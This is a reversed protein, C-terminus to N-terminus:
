SRLNARSGGEVRAVAEKNPRDKVPKIKLNRKGEKNKAIKKAEEAPQKRALTVMVNFIKHVM